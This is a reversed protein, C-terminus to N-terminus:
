RRWVANYPMFSDHTNEGCPDQLMNLEVMDTDYAICNARLREEDAAAMRVMEMSGQSRTVFIRSAKQLIYFQFPPPLEIFPFDWVINLSVASTFEFSHTNKDYLKGERVVLQYENRNAAQDSSVFLANAPVYIFGDNDPSLPYHNERNFNWREALTDKTTQKLVRQALDIEPNDTNISTVPAEGICSLMQNIADLETM